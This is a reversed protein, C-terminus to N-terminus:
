RMQHGKVPVSSRSSRDIRPSFPPNERQRILDASSLCYRSWSTNIEARFDIISHMKICELDFLASVMARSSEPAVSFKMLRCYAM